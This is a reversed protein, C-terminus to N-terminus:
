LESCDIANQIAEKGEKIIYEKFQENSLLDINPIQLLDNAVVNLISNDGTILHGFKSNLLEKVSNLNKSFNDEQVSENLAKLKNLNNEILDLGESYEKLKSMLYQNSEDSDNSFKLQDGNSLIFTSNRLLGAYNQAGFQSSEISAITGTIYKNLNSSYGSVPKGIFNDIMFKYQLKGYYFSRITDPAFRSKAKINSIQNRLEKKKDKNLDQREYNIITSSTPAGTRNTVSTSSARSQAVYLLKKHEFDKKVSNIDEEDVFINKFTSGQSKHVTMAYGYDVNKSFSKSELEDSSYEFSGNQNINFNYMMGQILPYYEYKFIKKRGAIDGTKKAYEARNLIDAKYDFLAKLTEPKNKEAIVAFVQTPKEDPQDLDQLMLLEGKLNISNIRNIADTKSIIKYNGGNTLDVGDKDQSKVTGYLLINEGVTYPETYGLANRIVNNYENVTANRYALVRAFTYDEKYNNTTFANKMADIFGKKNTVVIGEKTADNINTSLKIGRSDKNTSNLIDALYNGLPNGNQQREIKKLESVKINKDLFVKSIEDQKVPNLQEKDGIFLVKINLSKAIELIIDTTVDNVMSIEDIVIVDLSRLLDKANDSIKFTLIDNVIDANSGMMKAITEVKYNAGIMNQLINKAAHSISAFQVNKNTKSLYDAVIATISSKGTGASGTLTHALVGNKNELFNAIEELAKLQDNNPKFTIGSDLLDIEVGNLMLKNETFKSLEQASEIILDEQKAIREDYAKLKENHINNESQNKSKDITNETYITKAFDFLADAHSYYNGKDNMYLLKKNHLAGKKIQTLIWNRKEPFLENYKTGKLWDVYAEVAEAVSKKQILGPVGSGTFINGFNENANGDKTRMTNVGESSYVPLDKLEMWKKSKDVSTKETYVDIDGEAKIKVINGTDNDFGFNILLQEKLYAYTKPAKEKLKALGTGIGNKPFIIRQKFTKLKNIDNDIIQKNNEFSTDSMFANDDNSPHLKTVIGFANNNNRIVAQGATGKRDLNDGFVYISNSNNKVDEDNYNEVVEIKNIEPKIQNNLFYNRALRLGELFAKDITDNTNHTYDDYRLLMESAESNPNQKFSEVVLDKMLQLNTSHDAKATGQIKKGYGRTKLNNYEDYVKVDFRGSKLTQYAHEVSGYMRGKWRFRREALNSLKKTSTDSEDQGYYVNIIKKNETRPAKNFLNPNAIEYKVFNFKGYSKKDKVMQSLQQEFLRYYSRLATEIDNQNEDRLLAFTSSIDGQSNVFEVKGNIKKLRCNINAM